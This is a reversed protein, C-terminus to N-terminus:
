YSTKFRIEKSKSNKERDNEKSQELLEEKFNEFWTLLDL